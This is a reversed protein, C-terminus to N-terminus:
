SFCWDPLPVMPVTKGSLTHTSDPLFEWQGARLFSHCSRPVGGVSGYTTLLSPSLTPSELNGDWDWSQSALTTNVPVIVLDGCGPCWAWFSDWTQDPASQTSAKRILVVPNM